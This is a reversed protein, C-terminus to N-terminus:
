WASYTTGDASVSSSGSHLDTIGQAIKGPSVVVSEFVPKWTSNSNTFPDIPIQRLYGADVLDQLTQPAEKKDAKYQDLVERLTLLNLKLTKERNSLMVTKYLPIMVGILIAFTIAVIWWKRGRNLMITELRAKM